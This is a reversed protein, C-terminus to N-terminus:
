DLAQEDLLVGAEVYVEVVQSLEAGVEGSIDSLVWDFGNVHELRLKIANNLVVGTLLLFVALLRRKCVVFSEWGFDFLVVNVKFSIESLIM